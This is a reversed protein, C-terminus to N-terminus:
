WGDADGFPGPRLAAIRYRRGAVLVCDAVASFEVLFRGGEHREAIRAFRGLRGAFGADTTMLLMRERLVFRNATRWEISPSGRRIDDDKGIDRGAVDHFLSPGTILHPRRGEIGYLNLQLAHREHRWSVAVHRSDMSWEAHYANAKTDLNNDDGIADLMAVKRHAPEAMLWVHFNGGGPDAHAALSTRTDRSLGGDIVVYEDAGYDYEATAGAPTAACAVLAAVLISIAHRLQM